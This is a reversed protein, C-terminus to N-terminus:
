VITQECVFWGIDRHLLGHHIDILANVRPVTVLVALAV